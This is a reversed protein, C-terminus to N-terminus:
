ATRGHGDRARLVDVLDQCARRLERKAERPEMALQVRIRGIRDIFGAPYVRTDYIKMTNLFEDLKSGAHIVLPGQDDTLLDGADLITLADDLLRLHQALPHTM